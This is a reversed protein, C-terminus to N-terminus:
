PRASVWTQGQVPKGLPSTLGPCSSLDGLLRALPKIRSGVNRKLAQRRWLWRPAADAGLRGAEWLLVACLEPVTEWFLVRPGPSAGLALALAGALLAGPGASSTKYRGNTM